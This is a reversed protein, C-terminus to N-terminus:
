ATRRLHLHDHVEGADRVLQGQPLDGDGRDDVPGSEDMGLAWQAIDLHHAGFNTLQGGSYDWFFRFLYHVRNQTTRGSRRRASGSTTTSSPRRTALRPGARPATSWNPGPIGVRVEKLKGLRGNRVHECAQRFREDSRQQSGTQVIRKNRRAANVMARGEAITLTLPKECYVDKGANCADVTM